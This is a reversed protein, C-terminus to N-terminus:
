HGQPLAAHVKAWGTSGPDSCSAISFAPSPAKANSVAICTGKEEKCNNNAITGSSADFAFATGVPNGGPAYGGAGGEECGRLHPVHNNGAPDHPDVRCTMNNPYVGIHVCVGSPAQASTYHTNVITGKGRIHGIVWLTAPDRGDCSMM